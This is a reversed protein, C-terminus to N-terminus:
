RFRRAAGRPPSAGARAASTAADDPLRVDIRGLEEDVAAIIVEVAEGLAHEGPAGPLLAMAGDIQVLAGQPKEGIVVGRAREGIRKAFLRALLVRERENEARAARRATDNLRACLAELAADHAAAGREGHLYRRLLRHVALDAYRRIPSTFHLYLPAALGFHTSPRTTYRAPGLLRRLANDVAAEYATGHVQRDFAALAKPSLPTVSSFGAVLGLATAADALARTREVTPPDHVRYVAPLGREFLFRAVAENAAVMLREVMVHAVDDRRVEVGTPGGQEDLRVSIEEREVDRGGREARSQSLRAAAARLLRLTAHTAAPVAAAEGSDLFRTVADYTLRATSRIVAEHVDVSTVRGEVDIRLEAVLVPRDAGEVLSLLDESLRRPLMPVTRGPLYVSTTRARADGDVISGEEVVASVDAIAVIVRLAGDADPPLALLADDIDKTSPGDITVTVVGRLDRRGKTPPAKARAAAAEVPPDPDGRLNHRLLLVELEAEVGSVVREAVLRSGDIRAVVADGDAIALRETALPWDTNAVLRDVRLMRRKNRTLATGFLRERPREVLALNKASKRGGDDVVEFDVVDDALFRNLDPPAVFASAEEGAGEAVVFGFGRPHVSVRGRMAALGAM